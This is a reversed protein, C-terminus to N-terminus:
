SRWVERRVPNGSLRAVVHDVEDIVDGVVWVTDRRSVTLRRLVGAHALRDASATAEKAARLAHRAVLSVMPDADGERYACWASDYRRRDGAIAASIPVVLERTLGRHRWVGNILTRAARGNADQFPQISLLQAHAVSAQTVPDVDTRACFEVLDDM